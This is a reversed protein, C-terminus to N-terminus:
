LCNLIVQWLLCGQIRSLGEKVCIPCCEGEPVTLIEGKECVPRLCLVASCDIGTPPCMDVTVCINNVTDIVQGPPCTCGQVCLTSCIQNPDSDCTTPCPSACDSFVQGEIECQVEAYHFYLLCAGVLVSLSCKLCVKKSVSQVANARLFKWCREKRM